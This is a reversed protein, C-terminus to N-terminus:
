WAVRLITLDDANYLPAIGGAEVPGLARDLAAADAVLEHIVDRMALQPTHEGLATRCRSIVDDVVLNM